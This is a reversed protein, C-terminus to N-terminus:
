MIHRQSKTKGLLSPPRGARIRHDAGDDDFLAADDSLTKMEPGAKRMRFDQRESLCAAAGAAGREIHREFGAAMVM